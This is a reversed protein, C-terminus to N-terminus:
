KISQFRVFESFQSAKDGLVYFHHMCPDVRICRAYIHIVTKLLVFLQITTPFLGSNM